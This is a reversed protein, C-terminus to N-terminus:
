TGGIMFFIGILIEWIEHFQRIWQVGMMGRLDLFPSLFKKLM